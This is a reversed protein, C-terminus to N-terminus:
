DPVLRLDYGTVTEIRYNDGVHVYYVCDWRCNGNVCEWLCVTSFESSIPIEKSNGQDIELYNSSGQERIAVGGSYNAANRVIITARTQSEQAIPLDLPSGNIGSATFRVITNRSFGSTNPEVLLAIISSTNGGGISLSLWTDYTDINFSFSSLSGCNSVEVFAIGGTDPALLFSPSLCLKPVNAPFQRVLLQQSLNSGAAAITITDERLSESLNSKATVRFSDPTTGNLKSVDLWASNWAASWSVKSVSNLNDLRVHSSSEGHPSPEWIAHSIEITGGSIVVSDDLSHQSESGDSGQAVVRYFYIQNEWIDVDLYASLPTQTSGILYFEGVVDVSRYINYAVVTKPGIPKWNLKVGQPSLTAQLGFADFQDLQHPDLANNRDKSPCSCLLAIAVIWGIAFSMKQVTLEESV